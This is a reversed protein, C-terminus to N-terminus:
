LPEIVGSRCESGQGVLGLIEGIEVLCTLAFLEWKVIVLHAIWAWVRVFGLTEWVQFEVLTTVFPCTVFSWEIM